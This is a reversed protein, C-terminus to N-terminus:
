SDLKKYLLNLEEQMIKKCYDAINKRDEPELDELYIPSLCKILVKTGGKIKPKQTEYVSISNAIIIPLIPCNTKLAIKFSGNKFEQILEPHGTKNATGEPFIVMSIGKNINDIATLITKLGEKINARDLFLSHGAKMWGALVPVSLEKKSIYGTPRKWKIYTLITDFVSQHNGIILCARDKPIKDFDIYTTKVGSILVMTGLIFKILALMLYDLNKGFLNLLKNFLFIPAFIVFFLLVSTIALITRLM